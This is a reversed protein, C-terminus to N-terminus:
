FRYRLGLHLSEELETKGQVLDIEFLRYGAFGTVRNTVPVEARAIVDWVNDASGFTLIDPAYVAQGVITVQPDRLLRYRAEAGLAFAFVDQNEESLLAGYAVPGILVSLRNIRLASADIYYNASAVIDREENFFLGLGLQGEELNDAPQATPRLYRLQVSEESVSIEGFQSGQANAQHPLVAVMFCFSLVSWSLYKPM